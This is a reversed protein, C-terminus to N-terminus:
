TIPANGTVKLFFFFFGGADKHKENGKEDETEKEGGKERYTLRNFLSEGTRVGRSERADRM